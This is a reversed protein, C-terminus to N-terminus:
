SPLFHHCHVVSKEPRRRCRGGDAHRVALVVGFRDRLQHLLGRRAAHLSHHKGLQTQRTVGAAVEKQLLGQEVRRLALQRRQDLARRPQRHERRHANRHRHIPRQVVAGGHEAAPPQKAKGRFATHRIVAFEVFRAMEGGRRLAHLHGERAKGHREARRQQVPGLAPLVARHAHLDTLIEPRRLRGGCPQGKRSRRQNQVKGRAVLHDTLGSVAALQDAALGRSQQAAINVGVRALALGGRIEHEGAM